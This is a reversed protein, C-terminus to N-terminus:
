PNEPDTRDSAEGTTREAAGREQALAQTLIDEFLQSPEALAVEGSERDRRVLGAAELRPLHVHHLAALVREREAPTVAEAPDRRARLWGAVVTTLEEVPVAERDRLYYLLLRREPRSLVDFLEGVTESGDDPRDAGM